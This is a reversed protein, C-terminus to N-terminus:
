RFSYKYRTACGEQVWDDPYNPSTFVTDVSSEALQFIPKLNIQVPVNIESVPLSDLKYHSPALQPREPNIKPSCSCVILVIASFIFLQLPNQNM